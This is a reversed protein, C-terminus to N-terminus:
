EYGIESGIDANGLLSLFADMKKNKKKLLGNSERREECREKKLTNSTWSADFPVNERTNSKSSAPSTSLASGPDPM